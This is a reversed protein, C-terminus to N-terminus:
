ALQPFVTAQGVLIYGIEAAAGTVVIRVAGVTKTAFLFLLAADDTPSTESGSIDDWGGLGDSVQVKVTAGVTGLTHAGIGVYSVAQDTAFTLTWDAPVATPKWANVVEEAYAFAASFGDAETSATITGALRRWCLRPHDLGFTGGGFGSEIIVSM